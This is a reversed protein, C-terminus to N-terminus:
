LQCTQEVQQNKIKSEIHGDKTKKEGERKEIERHAHTHTKVQSHTQGRDEVTITYQCLDPLAGQSRQDEKPPPNQHSPTLDRYYVESNFNALFLFM